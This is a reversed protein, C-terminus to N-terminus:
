FAHSCVERIVHNDTDAVYVIDGTITVGQNMQYSAVKVWLRLTDGILNVESVKIVWNNWLWIM